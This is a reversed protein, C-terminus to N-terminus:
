KEQGGQTLVFFQVVLRTIVGESSSTKKLAIQGNWLGM